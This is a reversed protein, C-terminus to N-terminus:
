GAEMSQRVAAEIDDVIRDSVLEAAVRRCLRDEQPTKNGDAWVVSLLNELLGAREDETKFQRRIRDWDPATQMERELEDPGIGPMVLSRELEQITQSETGEVSGDARAMWMMLALVTRSWEKMRRDLDALEERTLALDNFVYRGALSAASIFMFNQAGMFPRGVIPVRNLEGRQAFRVAIEAALLAAYEQAGGRGVIGAITKAPARRGGEVLAQRTMEHGLAVGLILLVRDIVDREEDHGYVAAQYLISKVMRYMVFGVETSVQGAAIATRVGPISGIAGPTVAAHAALKSQQYVVRQALEDRSLSGQAQSWEVWNDADKRGEHICWSVLDYLWSTSM